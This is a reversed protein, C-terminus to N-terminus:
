ESRLSPTLHDIKENKKIDPLKMYLGAILTLMSTWFCNDGFRFAGCLGAIAVGLIILSFLVSVTYNVCNLNFYQKLNITGCCSM